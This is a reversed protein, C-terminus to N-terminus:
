ALSVVHSSMLRCVHRLWLYTQRKVLLGVHYFRGVAADLARGTIFLSTTRRLCYWQLTDIPRSFAPKRGIMTESVCVCVSVSAECSSCFKHKRGRTTVDAANHVATKISRCAGVAIEKRRVTLTHYFCQGFLKAIQLGTSLASRDEAQGVNPCLQLCKIQSSILAGLVSTM